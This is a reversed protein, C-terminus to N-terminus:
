NLGEHNDRSQSHYLDFYAGKERLLSDHTGSEIIQGDDVVMIQDAQQITNLRHAIVFSTRGKMLRRMAEQIKIETITDINSTAEDLILIAPKALFARAISLLQKQGQSISSGDRKLMTDFQKPLKMIFSYANALKAAEEIEEDTADLRGYRINERVTGQFLFADQLVFGMQQRLSDRTVESMDYGDILIKGSNVDYFRSLLNIITTKGAGTPGVLAVTQGPAAKFSVDKLTDNGKEYAFSVHQFEVEGKVDPLPAADKEDKIEEDEDLIDFVREAGAVAALLTNFENSLDNLPRTFQRTYETFAVIVGITVMGYLALIGGIGAIIAFSLNNLMNLLKPVFGSFARAWFGVQKLRESKEICEAIVKQEQSFTKIISQGSIMEEIFGNLEGLSKQQEKFFRGTRKTIWKMGLFMLPVIILTILTLMPSLWLMMSLTGILTIVSSFIQIVSDNLTSSINDIDNTVRSMLEGHQRKDFFAVPLKHFHEFLQRRMALVTNQAIGIMLINQLWLFLSYLLYVGALLLLFYLLGNTQKPVIYDDIVKGVLFPGALGLCSSAIVMLIVVILLGKNYALYSAIRRVTGIKAKPRAKKISKNKDGAISLKEYKFPETIQKLM